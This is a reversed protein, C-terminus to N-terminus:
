IFIPKLNIKIYTKLIELEMLSLSYIPEYLPQKDKVLKIAHENIETNESLIIIM